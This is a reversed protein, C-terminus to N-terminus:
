ALVLAAATSVRGKASRSPQHTVADRRPATGPLQLQKRGTGVPDSLNLVGWLSCAAEAPAGAGCGNCLWAKIKIYFGAQVRTPNAGERERSYKPAHMVSQMDTQGATARLPASSLSGGRAAQQSSAGVQPLAHLVRGNELIFGSQVAISAKYDWNNM